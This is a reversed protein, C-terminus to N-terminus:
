PIERGVDYEILYPILIAFGPLLFHITGIKAVNHLLM